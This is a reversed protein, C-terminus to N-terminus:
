HVRLLENVTGPEILDDHKKGWETIKPKSWDLNAFYAQRDQETEFELDVLVVDYPGFIFSCVRHTVGAEELMAKTLEIFESRCDLKMKWTMRHVIM